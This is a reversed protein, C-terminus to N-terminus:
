RNSERTEIVAAHREIARQRDISGKLGSKNKRRAQVIGEIMQRDISEDDRDRESERDSIEREEHPKCERRM